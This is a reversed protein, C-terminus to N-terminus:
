TISDFTVNVVVSVDKIYNSPNELNKLFMDWEKKNTKNCLNATKFIDFNFDQCTTFLNNIDKKLTEEVTDIIKHQTLYDLQNYLKTNSSFKPSIEDIRFENIIINITHVPKGNIFEIKNQKRMSDVQLNLNANEIEGFTFDTIFINGTKSEPRTIYYGFIQNRDTIKDVYNGNKFLLLPSKTKIEASEQSSSQSSQQTEQSSSQSSGQNNQEPLTIVFTDLVECGSAAASNSIFDIYNTTIANTARQNTLYIKQLSLAVGLELQSTKFIADKADGICGLLMVSKKLKFNRFFYDLSGSLNFQHMSEGVLIFEMHSLETIKGLKHSVRQIGDSITKASATVYSIKANIGNGQAGNQPLVVQSTVQYEGNVFDIGIGTIIVRMNLRAQDSLSQPFLLFAFLLIIIWIYKKVFKLM